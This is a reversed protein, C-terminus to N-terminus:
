SKCRKIDPSRACCASGLSFVGLYGLAIKFNSSFEQKIYDLSITLIRSDVGVSDDVEGELRWGRQSIPRISVM